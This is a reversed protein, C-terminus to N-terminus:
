ARYRLMISPLLHLNGKRYQILKNRMLNKLAKSFQIGELKYEPFQHWLNTLEKLLESERKRFKGLDRIHYLIFCESEDVEVQLEDFILQLGEVGAIYKKEKGYFNQFATFGEFFVALKFSICQFRPDPEKEQDWVETISSKLLKEFKDVKDFKSKELINEYVEALMKLGKAVLAALSM